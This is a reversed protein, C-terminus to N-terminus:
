AWGEDFGGLFSDPGVGAAPLSLLHRVLLFLDAGGPEVVSVADPWEGSVEGGGESGHADREVACPLPQDARGVREQEDCLGDLAVDDPVQEAVTVQGEEGVTGDGPDILDHDLLAAAAGADAATKHFVGLVPSSGDACAVEGKGTSSCSREVGCEVVLVGGHEELLGQVLSQKLVM